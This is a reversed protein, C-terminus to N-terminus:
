GKSIKNMFDSFAKISIEKRNKRSASDIKKKYQHIQKETLVGNDWVWEKGEMIGRVFAGPASPDAVIDASTVLYFDDEVIETDHGSTKLTGMGRSSVGLSAGEDILTKVIKGNPTDLIRAKGYVDNGDFRLETILHSVNPLHITPSDPHSLEGYAKNKIIYEATYRNVERELLARPYMRGNRNKIESQMFIGEIFYKKRPSGDVDEKIFKIEEAVECILKM